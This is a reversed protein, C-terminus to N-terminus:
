DFASALIMAYPDRLQTTFVLGKCDGAQFSNPWQVATGSSADIIVIADSAHSYGFLIGGMTWSDPVVTPGGNPVKIRPEEDGFASAVAGVGPYGIAGVLTETGTGPDLNWLNSDEDTAFLAGERWALGVYEQGTSMIPTGTGTAPDISILESDQTVGRLSWQLTDADQVAALGQGADFGIGNAFVSAKANLQSIKIVTALMTGANMVGYLGRHPGDPIFALGAVGTVANGDSDEVVGIRVYEDTGFTYRLLVSPGSDFAYMVVEDMPTLHPPQGGGAAHIAPATAGLSLALAGLTVFCRTDKM